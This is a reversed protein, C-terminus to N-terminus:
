IIYNKLFDLVREPEYGCQKLDNLRWLLDPYEENLSPQEQLRSNVFEIVEDVDHNVLLMEGWLGIGVDMHSAWYKAKYLTFVDELNGLAYIFYCLRYLNDHQWIAEECKIEEELISKILAYDLQSFDSELLEVVQTRYALNLDQDDSDEEEGKEFKFAFHAILDDALESSNLQRCTTILESPNM